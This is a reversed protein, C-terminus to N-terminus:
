KPRVSRNPQSASLSPSRSLAKAEHYGMKEESGARPPLPPTYVPPSTDSFKGATAVPMGVFGLTPLSPSHSAPLDDKQVGRERREEGVDSNGLAKVAVLTYM